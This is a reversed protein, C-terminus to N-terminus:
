LSYFQTYLTHSKTNTVPIVSLGLFCQEHTQQKEIKCCLFSNINPHLLVYFYALCRPIGNVFCQPFLRLVNRSYGDVPVSISKFALYNLDKPGFLYLQLEQWFHQEINCATM